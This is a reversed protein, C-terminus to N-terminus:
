VLSVFFINKSLTMNPGQRTEFLTAFDASKTKFLTLTELSFFFRKFELKDKLYIARINQKGPAL